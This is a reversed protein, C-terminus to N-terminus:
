PGPHRPTRQCGACRRAQSPGPGSSSTKTTTRITTPRTSVTTANASAPRRCHHSTRTPRAPCGAGSRIAATRECGARSASTCAVSTIPWRLSSLHVTGPAACAAVNQPNMTKSSVMM